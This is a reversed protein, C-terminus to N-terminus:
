IDMGHQDSAHDKLAVETDFTQGCKGCEHEHDDGHNHPM